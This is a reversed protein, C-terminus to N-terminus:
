FRLVGGFYWGKMKLRGLDEDALYEVDISRYGGQVGVNRGFNVTAYVDWDWFEAEFEESISDPMKFGTFEGTLSFDETLYGRGIVGVAPVPARADVEAAGIPSDIRATVTNHKLEAVVGLFGSQGSIFDWEYGARWLRWEVDATAPVGIDFVQGGFVIRREITTEEEYRFPIYHFRIKHKRGAKLTVRYETFRKKELGFEEVFDVEEGLLDLGDGGIVLAPDPSWFAAGIEVRYDEGPAPPVPVNFQARAAAPVAFLALVVACPRIIRM